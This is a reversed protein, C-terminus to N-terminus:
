RGRRPSRTLARTQEQLSEILHRVNARESVPLQPDTSWRQLATIGLARLDAFEPGEGLTRAAETAEIVTGSYWRRVQADAETPWAAPTAGVRHWWQLARLVVPRYRDALGAPNFSRSIEVDNIPFATMTEFATFVDRLYVYSQGARIPPESALRHFLSVLYAVGAPQHLETLM